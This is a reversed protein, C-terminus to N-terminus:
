KATDKAANALAQAARDCVRTGDAFGPLERKDDLLPTLIEVSMPSGYWLVNCITGARQASGTSLFSKYIAKAHNPFREGIMQLLQAGRDTDAPLADLRARALKLILDDHMRDIAPLAAMFYIESRTKQIFEFLKQRVAPDRSTAIAEVYQEHLRDGTADNMDVKNLQEILFPACGRNALCMLCAHAFYEDNASKMFLKQVADGIKRSQDHTLSEIFRAQACSEQPFIQPRNESKVDKPYGYLQVLCARADYKEKLSPQLRGEEDAEQTALDDFLELLVGQRSPSGQKRIFAALLKERESKDRAPYLRERVFTNSKCADYSPEALQRLVLPEVEEPYYYSLRWYAGIRRPECDASVFDEVLMSEHRERTLGTWDELVVKRLAASHTPSNVVLGGSPQYRSAVFARNVIQGLAVFCLDGVTIAHRRPPGNGGTEEHNVGQPAIKRMRRNFDYENAYTMWMMGSIPRMKITRTDNIHKLLLPVADIGKEVIKRLVPSRTVRIAGFVFTGMEHADTYPLFESGSYYVSYGFGPESNQILDDIWKEIEKEGAAVGTANLLTLLFFCSLVARRAYMPFGEADSLLQSSSQKEPFV